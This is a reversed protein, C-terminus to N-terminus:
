ESVGVMEFCIAPTDNTGSNNDAHWSEVLQNFKIADNVGLIARGHRTPPGEFDDLTSCVYIVISAYAEWILRYGMHGDCAWRVDVPSSSRVIDLWRKFESLMHDVTESDLRPDDELQRRWKVIDWRLMEDLVEIFEWRVSRRVLDLQGLERGVLGLSCAVNILEVFNNRLIDLASRAVEPEPTCVRLPNKVIAFDFLYNEISHGRSWVLRGIRHQSQLCDELIDGFRFRRFERDVFGVFRERCPYGAVIQCVNEVKQRNGEGPNDAKISEATTTIIRLQGKNDRCNDELDEMAFHLVDFFRKDRTGELLIHPHRSMRVRNVFSKYSLQLGTM